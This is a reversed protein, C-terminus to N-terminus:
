REAYVVRRDNAHAVKRHMTRWASPEVLANHPTETHPVGGHYAQM